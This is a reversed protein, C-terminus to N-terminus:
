QLVQLAEDAAEDLGENPDSPDFADDFPPRFRELYLALRRLTAPDDKVRGLVMNCDGHLLGRVAGTLHDHDVHTTWDFILRRSCGACCGNQLEYIRAWDEFDMGYARRLASEAVRRAFLLKNAARHIKEKELRRDRRLQAEEAAVREREKIRRNRKDANLKERNKERYAKAFAKVKEPNNRAWEAHRAYKKAKAEEPSAKM